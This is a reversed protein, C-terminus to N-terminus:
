EAAGGVVKIEKNMRCRKCIDEKVIRIAGCEICKDTKTM